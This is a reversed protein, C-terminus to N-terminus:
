QSPVPRYPLDGRGRSGVNCANFDGQNLRICDTPTWRKATAPGHVATRAPRQTAHPTSAAAIAVGGGTAAALVAAIACRRVYTINM